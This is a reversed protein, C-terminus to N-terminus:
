TQVQIKPPVSSHMHKSQAERNAEAEEAESQKQVASLNVARKV